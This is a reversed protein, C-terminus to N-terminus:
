TSPIPQASKTAMEDKERKRKNATEIATVVDLHRKYEFLIDSRFDDDGPVVKIADLDKAVDDVFAGVAEKLSKESASITVNM